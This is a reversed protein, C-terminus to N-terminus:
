YYFRHLVSPVMGNELDTPLRRARRLYIPKVTILFTVKVICHVDTYFCNYVADVAIFMFASFHLGNACNAYM